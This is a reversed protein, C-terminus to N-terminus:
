IDADLCKTIDSEKTIDDSDLSSKYFKRIRGFTISARVGSLLRVEQMFIHLIDNSGLEKPSYGVTRCFCLSVLM